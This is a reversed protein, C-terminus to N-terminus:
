SDPLSIKDYMEEQQEYVTQIVYFYKLQHRDFPLRKYSDLLHNIIGIDRRLYRLQKGVAKRISKRIKNKKHAAQLYYKRAPKVVIPAHNTAM